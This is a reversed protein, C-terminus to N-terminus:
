ARQVLLLGLLIHLHGDTGTYLTCHMLRLLGGGCSCRVQPLVNLSGMSKTQAAAYVAPAPTFYLVNSLVVGLYPFVGGAM